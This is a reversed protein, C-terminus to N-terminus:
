GPWPLLYARYSDVGPPFQADFLVHGSRSFESVEPLSGWDVFLDGDSTTQANGMANALQGQPQSVSSVLTAVRTALDLKITVVRSYPLEQGIQPAAEDDFVTYENDGIAEPDHQFAFIAGAEDFGQGHAARLRFSSQKGGLQWIIAGTHRNIKYITWTFRSSVLLNGDTDLHVANIHFWDWPTAASAPLPSHSDRYPVHGASNWQFLVKGTAIDVEQVVDDVIRQSAPGGISTLNATAIKDGLILATNWPTILFEHWNTTFGHGARVTAIRRYRDDYIYDTVAPLPSAQSPSPATLQCWTLVPKGRYTQARFDAAAQGAPLPHFWIVTGSLTVIEPGGPYGCGAPGVFIDGQGQRAARTHVTLPPPQPQRGPSAVSKVPGCFARAPAMACAPTALIVVVALATALGAARARRARRLWADSGM